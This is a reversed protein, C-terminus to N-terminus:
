KKQAVVQGTTTIIMLNLNEREAVHVSLNSPQWLFFRSGVTSNLAARMHTVQGATLM